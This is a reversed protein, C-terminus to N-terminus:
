KLKERLALHYRLARGYSAVFIGLRPVAGAFARLTKEGAEFYEVNETISYLRDLFLAAGSNGSPTPTDDIPKKRSALLGAGESHTPRDFFGGRQKDEYESMLVEAIKEAADLYSDSRLVDFLDLLAIGFFVQDDLLGEYTVSGGGFAHALKGRADVLNELIFDAAKEAAELYERRKLVISAEVLASIALGNRDTLLTTDVFPSNRRNRAILLKGKSSEILDEVQSASKGLQDAIADTGVAIRLVNRDPIERTDNPTERVDFYISAAAFEEDNLVERFEAETWTWYSGDDHPGVDADQHAYFPGQPSRLVTMIWDAAAIAVSRYKSDRTLEYGKLYASLMLSNDYLMKEFHPVHWYRDVSYRHFGGGVQDCVGGEAIRDLTMKLIQGLEDSGSRLAEDAVLLLATANFFKPASGFGGFERDTKEVAAKTIGGIIKEELEGPLSTRSEFENLYAVIQDASKLVDGRRNVYAEHIQPLLSLFGPRGAMDNKPFYTGGYFARGDPTLFGTLPWGGAGTIAGIAAQYRADVDPMQDRDVKVPVFRSNILEAVAPDSYSENDMVHCWHCWVAGIDLLIPRDLEEALKLVDESFIQWHVPQHAAERLYPSESRSLNNKLEM